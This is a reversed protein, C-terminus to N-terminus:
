AKIVKIWRGTAYRALCILGKLPFELRLLFYIWFADLHWIMAAMYGLPISILWVCSSDAVLLFRTDGGGRLIGKSIVYAVAELPITLSNCLFMKGAIVLTEDAVTYLSLYPHQVLLLIPVMLLGSFLAILLYTNSQRKAQDIHEEGITNGVVIASAGAMSINLTTIMQVFSGVMASAASMNPSVHGYVSQVIALSLGLLTDSVLVPVAFHIYKSWLSGGRSLMDPLRFNLNRDKLAFYGFVILFEFIRAIVTGVAAGLLELRPAGLKGFIFVWNFFINTFFAIASGILPINVIGTSRLMYTATSSLGSLLFTAGLLRLYPIGAAVVEPSSSYLRLITGPTIVSVLTFAACIALTVQMAMAATAKLAKRDRQGWFQSSLVVAGSGLGMCIFQFISYFSNSFSAAAIDVEGFGGIMINDLFNVGRTILQQLIIPAMLTLTSRFFTPNDFEFHKKNM